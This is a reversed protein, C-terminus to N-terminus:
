LVQINKFYIWSVHRIILFNEEAVFKTLIQLLIETAKGFQLKLVNKPVTRMCMGLLSLIASVSEPTEAAELTTMQHWFLLMLSQLFFLNLITMKIGVLAAYYETSSETGGSQKLVETVAALVALM